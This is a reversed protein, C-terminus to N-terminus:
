GLAALNHLSGLPDDVLRGTQTDLLGLVVDIRAAEDADAGYIWQACTFSKGSGFKYTATARVAEGFSLPKAFAVDMALVVVVRGASALKMPGVGM